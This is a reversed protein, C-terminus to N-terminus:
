HPTIKYSRGDSHIGWPQKHQTGKLLVNEPTLLELYAEIKGTGKPHLVMKGGGGIGNGSM